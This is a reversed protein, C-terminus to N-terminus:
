EKINEVTKYLPAPVFKVRLNSEIRRSVAQLEEESNVNSLPALVEKSLKEYATQMASKKAAFDRKMEEIETRTKEIKAGYELKKQEFNGVNISFSVTSSPVVSKIPQLSFLEECFEHNRKFRLLAVDRAHLVDLEDMNPAYFDQKLPMLVPMPMGPNVPIGMNQMATPAGSAGQPLVSAANSARITAASFASGAMQAPLPMGAQYTFPGAGPAVTPGANPQKKPLSGSNGAVPQPSIPIVGRKILDLRRPRVNVKSLDVSAQREIPTSTWRILQLESFPAGNDGLLYYRTREVLYLDNENEFGCSNVCMQLKLTANLPLM